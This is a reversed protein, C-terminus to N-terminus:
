VVSKRDVFIDLGLLSNFEFDSFLKRVDADYKEPAICSGLEINLDCNRNITALKYSLYALEKNTKLKEKVSGKIEEIHGYVGDLNGFNNLLEYATKEGIGPVGPINDSKDGMLSKLDIIQSPLLGTEEKFNAINLKLLDSM